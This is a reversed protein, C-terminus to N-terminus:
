REKHYRFTDYANEFGRVVLAIWSRLNRLIKLVISRMFKRMRLDVIRSKKRRTVAYKIKINLWRA